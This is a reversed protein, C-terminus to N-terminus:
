KGRLSRCFDAPQQPSDTRTRKVCSPTSGHGISSCNKSTRTLVNMTNIFTPVPFRILDAKQLGASLLAEEFQELPGYAYLVHHRDYVLMSGEVTSRIWLHHRGDTELFSRFTALFELTASRSQPEPCEYRGPESGGRPVALVYLLLFPEPMVEMLQLLLEVHCGKPAIVLRNPGTTNEVAWEGLYNFEQADPNRFGFKFLKEM